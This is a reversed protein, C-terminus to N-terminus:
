HKGIMTKITETFSHPDDPTVVILGDNKTTILVTKKRHTAYAKYSGLIQNSFYGLYSFLGGIGWKRLSGVMADPKVEVKSIDSLNIDKSWGLRLIRLKGDQLSYGYVGFVASGLIISWSIVMSILSDTFSDLGILLIVIVTTITILMGDWPARFQTKM